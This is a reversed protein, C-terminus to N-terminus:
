ENIRNRYKKHLLSLRDLIFIILILTLSFTSIIKGYYRIPTDRFIVRLKHTGESIDILIAGSEEETHIDTQIGDVYATWGPFNFTRIRLTLPEDAAIVIVREASKWKILEAKGRGSLIITKNQKDKAKEIKDIVVGSPLHEKTWNVEKVPLLENKTFVAASTIYHYDIVICIVFLLAIAVYKKTQRGSLNELTWFGSASLFVIAFSSIILWRVPFQIYKFFPIYEWIFISSGSLLFITVIATALFIINVTYADKMAKVQHWKRMLNFFLFICICLILAYIFLEKYYYPWVPATPINGKIDPFIFFDHFDYDYNIAKEIFGKMNMYKMEFFVPFLYAASVLFGISMLIPLAILTKLRKQIVSM